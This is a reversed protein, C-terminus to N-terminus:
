EPQSCRHGNTQVNYITGRYDTRLECELTFVPQCFINLTENDRGRTPGTDQRGPSGASSITMVPDPCEDDKTILLIKSWKIAGGSSAHSRVRLCSACTTQPWHHGKIHSTVGRPTILPHFLTVLRCIPTQQANHSSQQRLNLRQKYIHDYQSRDHALMM